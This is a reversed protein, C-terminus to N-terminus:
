IRVRGKRNQRKGAHQLGLGAVDEDSGTASLQEQYIECAHFEGGCYCIANYIDQSRLRTVYCDAIPDAVFPCRRKHPSANTEMGREGLNVLKERQCDGNWFQVVRCGSDGVHDPLFLCLSNCRSLHASPRIRQSCSTPCPASPRHWLLTARGMRKFVSNLLLEDPLHTKVLYSRIEAWITMIVIM